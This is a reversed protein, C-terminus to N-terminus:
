QPKTKRYEITPQLKPVFPKPAAPPACRLAFGIGKLYSRRQLGREYALRIKKEHNSAGTARRVISRFPIIDTTFGRMTDLTYEAAEEGAEQSLPTDDDSALSEDHDPGLITNLRQVEDSILACSQIPTQYPSEMELLMQPIQQRRINLDTLPQLTADEFGAGTQSVATDIGQSFPKQTATNENSSACAQLAISCILVSFLISNNPIATMM